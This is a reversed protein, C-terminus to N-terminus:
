KLINFVFRTAVPVYTLFITKFIFRAQEVKGFIAQYKRKLTM